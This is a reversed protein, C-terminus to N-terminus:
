LRRPGRIDGIGQHGNQDRAVLVLRADVCFQMRESSRGSTKGPLTPKEKFAELTVADNGDHSCGVVVYQDLIM